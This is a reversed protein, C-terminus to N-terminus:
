KGKMFVLEVEQHCVNSVFGSYARIDIREGQDFKESLLDVPYYHEYGSRNAPAVDQVLNVPDCFSVSTEFCLLYPFDKAYRQRQAAMAGELTNPNEFILAYLLPVIQASRYVSSSIELPYNFDHEAETWNYRLISRDFLSFEPLAQQAHYMYAFTTNMGLRLSFGLTQPIERLCAAIQHLSFDRVFLNDDVSFLILEEQGPIATLGRLVPFLFLSLLRRRIRGPLSHDRLPISMPWALTMAWLRKWTGWSSSYLINLVDLHFNSQAVFQVTPFEEQLRTYQLRAQHTTALYLVSVKALEADQCHLFFSRLTADLQMARDKSCVLCNTTM